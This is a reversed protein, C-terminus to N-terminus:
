TFQTVWAAAVVNKIHGSVFHSGRQKQRESIGRDIGGTGTGGMGGLGVWGSGNWATREWQLSYEVETWVRLLWFNVNAGSLPVM